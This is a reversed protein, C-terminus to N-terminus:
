GPLNGKDPVQNTSATACDTVSDYYYQTSALLKYTSSPSIGQYIDQQSPLGVIWKTANPQFQWKLTRNNSSNDEDYQEEVVVNGYGDYSDITKAKKSGGSNDYTFTETQYPPAFYYNVGTPPSSYSITTELLNRQANSIRIRYPKGKM